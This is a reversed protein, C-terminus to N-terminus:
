PMVEGGAPALNQGTVFSSDSSALFLACSNVDEVEGLRRLPYRQRLAELYDQPMNATTEGRIMAPTLCNVRIGNPGAEKALARTFGIMAAKAASMHTFNEMGTVGFTGGMNIINGSKQALMHPLVARSCLFMARVHIAFMSDWTEVSMESLPSANVLGANNVLIDVTGFRAVIATVIADVTEPVTIDGQYAEADGGVTRITEVTDKAGEASSNYGVALKAGEAAFAIAMAKGLGRSAGTIFAVKGDLKGM